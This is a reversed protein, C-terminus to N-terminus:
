GEMSEDALRLILVREQALTGGTPSNAAVQSVGDVGDLESLIRRLPLPQCLTLLIEGPEGSDTEVRMHGFEPENRLQELLRDFRQSHEEGLVKLRVSGAFVQDMSFESLEKGTKADVTEYTSRTEIQNQRPEDPTSGVVPPEAVLGDDRVGFPPNVVARNDVYDRFVLPIQSSGLTIEDKDRLRYDMNEINHRNVFTGNKSGLDRLRCETDTRRIEAHRRSVTPDDVFVDADPRRGLTTTPEHVPLVRGNDPGGLIVLYPQDLISDM